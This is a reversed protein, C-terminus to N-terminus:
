KKNVMRSKIKKTIYEDAQKWLMRNMHVLIAEEDVLQPENEHGYWKRSKPDFTFQAKKPVTRLIKYNPETIYLERPTEVAVVKGNKFIITVEGLTVRYFDWSKSVKFRQITTHM